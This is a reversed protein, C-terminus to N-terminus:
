RRLSGERSAAPHISYVLGLFDDTLLFSDPGTRLLGCPRGRIVPKGNATALFGALVALSLSKNLTKM